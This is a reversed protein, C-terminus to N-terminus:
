GAAAVAVIQDVVLDPMDWVIREMGTGEAVTTRSESSLGGYFALGQQWYDNEAAAAVRGVTAAHPASLFVAEPDQAIVVLPADGFGDIAGSVVPDLDPWTPRSMEPLLADHFASFGLPTPDVLVVGAVDDRGEAFLRLAHVGDGASVLLYPGAIGGTRLAVDLDAARDQPTSEGTTYGDACVVYGAASLKAQVVSWYGYDIWEPPELLITPGEADATGTCLLRHPFEDWNDAVVEGAEILDADPDVRVLAGPQFLTVWLSGDAVIVGGAKGPMPHRQVEGTAPDIRILLHDTQSTVWLAGGSEVIDSLGFTLAGFSGLVGTATDFRSLNTGWPFDGDMLWLDGGAEVVERVGWGSMTVLGTGTPIVIEGMTGDEALSSILGTEPDNVWLYGLGEGKLEGPRTSLTEGDASLQHLTGTDDSLWLSDGFWASAVDGGIPITLDVAGAAPDFRLREGGNDYSNLWIYGGGVVVGEVHGEVPYTAEVEGTATSVRQLLHQLATVVWITEGDAAMTQVGGSALPIVDILGPLDGLGGTPPTFVSVSRSRLLMPAAVLLTATFGAAAVLWPRRVGSRQPELRAPAGIRDEVLARLRTADTTSEIAPDARELLDTM